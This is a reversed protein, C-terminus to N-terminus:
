NLAVGRRLYTPLDLDEGQRITPESKDFRGKSVVELPLVGQRMKQASRRGGKGTPRRELEKIKEATLEPPPPLVRTPPRTSLNKAAANAALTGTTSHSSDDGFEGDPADPHTEADAGRRQSAVVTIILKQKLTEDVVAGTIVHAKECHRTIQETVRTIEAMTLDADGALSVLVADAESLVRGGDLLPHALLKEGIERSRNEGMAEVTAFASETERGQVVACLDAFSVNMFGHQTLIRLICRVAQVLLNQTISFTESVRTHEDILKLVRQNALCLVGDATLKLQLLGARAQRQRRSGECEFPLTVFALVQAGSERAVRALVPAIGTATGGGLGAVIVVLEVGQCAARLRDAEEEAVARALEPDGGVGLGRTRRGGLYIKEAVRSSELATAETNVAVLSAGSFEVGTISEIAQCGATGLGFIKITQSPKLHQSTTAAVSTTM